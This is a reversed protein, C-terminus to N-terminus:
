KGGRITLFALLASRIELKDVAECGLCAVAITPLTDHTSYVTKESADRLSTKGDKLKAKFRSVDKADEIEFGYDRAKIKYILTEQGDKLKWDGDDQRQLEWLEVDQQANKVKYRGDSAVIYGLVVDNPDKIKLKNGDVNFRAIEQEDADVLKAGDDQPKISFATKGDDTKFKIKEKLGQVADAAQVQTTTTDAHSSDDSRSVGQSTSPQVTVEAREGCGGTVLAGALAFAAFPLGIKRDCGVTQWSCGVTKAMM